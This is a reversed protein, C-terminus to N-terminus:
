RYKLRQKNDAALLSLSKKQWARDVRRKFNGHSLPTFIKDLGSDKYWIKVYKGSFVAGGNEGLVVTENRDM